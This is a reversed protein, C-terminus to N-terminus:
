KTIQFSAQSITNKANNQARAVCGGKDRNEPDAGTDDGVVTRESTM